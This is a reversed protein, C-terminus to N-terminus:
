NKRATTAIISCIISWCFVPAFTEFFNNRVYQENGKAVIRAKLKNINGISGTKVKFIWMTHIPVKGDPISTIPSWTQNELM